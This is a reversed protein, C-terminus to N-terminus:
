SNMWKEAIYGEQDLPKGCNETGKVQKETAKVLAEVGSLLSAGLRDIGEPCYAVVM